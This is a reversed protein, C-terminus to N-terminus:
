RMPQSMKAVDPSQSKGSGTGTTARAFAGLHRIDSGSTM